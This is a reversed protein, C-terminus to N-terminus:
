ILPSMSTYSILRSFRLHVGSCGGRKRTDRGHTSTDDAGEDAVRVLRSHTDDSTGNPVSPPVVLDRDDLTVEVTNPGCRTVAASSGGGVTVRDTWAGLTDGFSWVDEMRVTSPPVPVEGHHPTLTGVTYRRRSSQTPQGGTM